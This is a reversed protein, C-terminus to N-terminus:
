WRRPLDKKKKKGGLARDTYNITIKRWPGMFDLYKIFLHAWTWM